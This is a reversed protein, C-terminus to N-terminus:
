PMHKIKACSHNTKKRKAFSSKPKIEFDSIRIVAARIGPFDDYRIGLSDEFIQITSISIASTDNM